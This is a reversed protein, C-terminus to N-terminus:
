RLAPMRLLEQFAPPVIVGPDTEQLLNLLDTIPHPYRDTRRRRRRSHKLLDQIYDADSVLLKKILRVKHSNTVTPFDDCKSREYLFTSPFDPPLGAAVRLLRRDGPIINKQMLTEPLHGLSAIAYTLLTRVLSKYVLSLLHPKARFRPGRLIKLIPERHRAKRKM